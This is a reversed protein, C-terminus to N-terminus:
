RVPMRLQMVSKGESNPTRISRSLEPTSGGNQGNAYLSSSAEKESVQRGSQDQAALRSSSKNAGFNSFISKSDKRIKPSAPSDPMNHFAAIPTAADKDGHYIAPPSGPSRPSMPSAVNEKGSKGRMALSLSSSKPM